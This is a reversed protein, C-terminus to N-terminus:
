KARKLVVMGTGGGTAGPVTWRMETASVLTVVYKRDKGIVNPFTAGMVHLMFSHEADNVTYTGFQAFSGQATAKNEEDTGTLRSGSAYPARDPRTLITAFRGNREFIAIGDPKEGYSRGHTGDAQVDEVSVYSWTGVIQQKLSKQQASSSGAACISLLSGVAAILVLKIGWKM